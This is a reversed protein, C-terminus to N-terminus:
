EEFRIKAFCKNDIEGMPRIAVQIKPNALRRTVIDAVFKAREESLKENNFANGKNNAYGEVIIRLEGNELM